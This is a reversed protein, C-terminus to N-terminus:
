KLQYPWLVPATDPLLNGTRLSLPCTYHHLPHSCAIILSMTCSPIYHISAVKLEMVQGVRESALRVRRMEEDLLRVRGGVRDATKATASVRKHLLSADLQLEDLQPTLKQLRDLSDLITQESNLLDTLSVSLEREESQLSSLASLIDPLNTLSTPSPRTQTDGSGTPDDAVSM